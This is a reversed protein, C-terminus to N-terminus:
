EKLRTQDIFLELFEITEDFNAEEVDRNQFLSTHSIKSNFTDFPSSIPQYATKKFGAM